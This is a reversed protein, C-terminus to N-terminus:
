QLLRYQNRDSLFNSKISNTIEETLRQFITILLKLRGSIKKYGPTEKLDSFTSDQKQLADMGFTRILEQEEEQSALTVFRLSLSRHKWCM